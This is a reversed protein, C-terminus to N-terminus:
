GDTADDYVQEMDIRAIVKWADASGTAEALQSRSEHIVM